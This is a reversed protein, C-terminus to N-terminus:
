DDLTWHQHALCFTLRTSKSELTLGPKYMPKYNSYGYSRLINYTTRASIPKGLSKNVINTLAQTSLQRTTSNKELVGVVTQKVEETAKPPRGSRAADEIYALVLKKSEQSNYGRQITTKRYDYITRKPIGTIEQIQAIPVNMELLTLAQLRTEYDHRSQRTSQAM